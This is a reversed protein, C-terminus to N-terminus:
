IRRESKPSKGKGKMRLFLERSKLPRYDLYYDISSRLLIKAQQLQEPSSLKESALAALTEGKVQRIALPDEVEVKIAGQAPLYRYWASEEIDEGDTDHELVLGYGCEALLRKEFLRLAMDPVSEVDLQKLAVTYDAFVAEHPDHRHLFRTILENLYYGCYLKDSRFEHSKGAPEAATLTALEGRGSFGISLPNFLRLHPRLPSKPRRAGKAVLGIRGHEATLVELILSSERFPKSHLIYAPQKEHRM